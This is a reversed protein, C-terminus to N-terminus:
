LERADRRTHEHLAAVAWRETEGGLNGCRHFVSHFLLHFPLPIEPFAQNIAIGSPAFTAPGM